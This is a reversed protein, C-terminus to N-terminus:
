ISRLGEFSTGSGIILTDIIKEAAKGNGFPNIWSKKGNIM